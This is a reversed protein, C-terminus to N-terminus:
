ASRTPRRLISELAMTSVPLQREEARLALMAAEDFPTRRVHPMQEFLGDGETVLDTKLGEVLERAVGIEARTVFRLWHSSLRPTLFPIRIALPRTGRLRAVRFLVDQFMLREPGPIDWAGALSADADLAFVLAAVVDRIAIPECENRLWSPLLMVPLRASLDRVIRWSESGAGMIMGARLEFTPVGSERLLEGTRLRSALHKSVEGSPKPGGLYVIREVGRELAIEGFSRAAQAEREAYDGGEDMSHVLYVVRDGPQLVARISDPDNLDMTAWTRDPAQAAARAADRSTCVVKRAGEILAPYLHHGVFGTAGTLIVRENNESESM